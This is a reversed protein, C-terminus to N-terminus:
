VGDNDGEETVPALAARISDRSFMDQPCGYMGKHWTPELARVRELAAEARELRDLLDLVTAPNAAAIFEADAPNEPQEDFEVKLVYRREGPAFIGQLDRSFPQNDDAEWPGPTANEALARLATLNDSM